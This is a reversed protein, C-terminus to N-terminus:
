CNVRYELINYYQFSDIKKKMTSFDMPRKIIISYGPAILDTVPYQFVDEKDKRFKNNNNLYLNICKFYFEVQKTCSSYLRSM